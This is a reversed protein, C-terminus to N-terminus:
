CSTARSSTATSSATATPKRWRTPWRRASTSRRNSPCRAGRRLREALTEGDLHEMVLYDITAGGGAGPARISGIDHLVCINPHNLASVARAEHEFRRRREPDSALNSPLVKIAVTRGLRTDRAKYVEGMGGAGVCATSRTPAWARGLCFRGRALRGPRRTSFGWRADRDLWCRSWRAAYPLTAAARRTSFRWATPGPRRCRRPACPSLPLLAPTVAKVAFFRQGDPAIDYCRVPTCDGLRLSSPDYEFLQRPRGIRPPSGAEFDAAMMSAKGTAGGTAFLLEKSGSLNWVPSQGGDISMRTEAGPGPYPRVYVEKRKSVDSDYAVWRGDPSFAPGSDYSPREFLPQMRAKGDEVTVIQIDRGYTGALQRRGSAWSSPSIPNNSAELVVEPPATSSDAPASALRWQGDKLWAFELRQGDPSWAPYLSEGDQNVPTLTGRGLDYVWLGVDTVSTIAVALRHGDPSVRVFPRYSRVPASRPSTLGRRDITVIEYNLQPAVAGPIWALTGTPGIAFQGAGTVDWVIGATLGQAVADLVALPHGVVELRTADFGVAFMQGRRLFVLHGTPVYRADAEDKLLSKREGTALTQAVIEEDGWSWYRKRVTYLLTNGGPLLSPLVHALEGGGVTSVPAPAGEPPVQWIRGDRNAFIIRGREDWALGRPVIDIGSAVEMAPGGGIPIKRLTRRAWFAVWQGDLSVAPVQAGETGAIPRAEAEDLRRVYLQRVGSRRGVFVLAQGDPTWALATRTGGPTPLFVDSEGGANLEEAPGVDMSLRVMSPRPAHPRLMWMLGAGAAILMLSCVAMGTMRMGRRRPPQVVTLMAGSGSTERIWRLEDALDHASDCRLDPDKALCRRVLRDLVPPMVPQLASVPPPESTMIASIISAGTEGAFARQGTLMEYLVCGFAFLDTRADVEKGELQEPAMYPVTGMVAGPTTASERTPVASQASGPAGTQPRLKALGFDLLKAQLGAGSKMLMVNGPKLDRHVIGHRHAKALADAIQAGIDLAQELPMAGRRLREALTEGDLHEMVLYDITAGGGAGPARISGIDHLVCINPHNLASVARAEHEFRRRREPDSALNSPLVKVAVTRGLRTDRAKYVEGMGGAGLLSDIEYPGLRTGPLLAGTGAQWAPTDLFGVAREQGALLSEVEDRLAADGGCAADLFAVRDPGVKSLAEACVSEVQERRDSNM